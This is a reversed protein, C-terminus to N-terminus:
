SNPRKFEKHGQKQMGNIKKVLEEAEANKNEKLTTELQQLAHILQEMQKKYEAAAKPREAEPLDSFKAPTLGVSAKAGAIVKQVLEISAANQAPDAVQRRLKKFAAAMDEMKNELETHKEEASFASPTLGVHAVTSFLLASTFVLPSLSRSFKPM